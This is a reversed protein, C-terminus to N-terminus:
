MVHSSVCDVPSYLVDDFKESDCQTGDSLSVAEKRVTPSAVGLKGPVGISRTAAGSWKASLVCTVFSCDGESFLCCVVGIAVDDFLSVGVDGCSEVDSRSNESLSNSLLSETSEVCAPMKGNIPIVDSVPCSFCMPMRCECVDEGCGVKVYGIFRGDMGSFLGRCCLRCVNSRREGVSKSVPESEDM